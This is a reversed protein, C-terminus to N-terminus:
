EGRTSVEVQEALGRILRVVDPIVVSYSCKCADECGLEYDVKQAAETYARRVAERIASAIFQTRAERLEGGRAGSLFAEATGKEAEVAMQTIEENTMMRERETPAGVM